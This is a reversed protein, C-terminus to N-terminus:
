SRSRFAEVAPTSNGKADFLATAGGHWVNLGPVPVAEPYWYLVGLGRGDPVAHVTRILEALFARQGEPSVPWDMHPEKAWREADRHPYATEVVLIEKGFARATERLNARVAEIFGHWWPYYSQGIIDFPVSWQHLNTFFWHTTPWDGGRDIHLMIRVPENKGLPQKVGRIGAQLLRTFQEWQRAADGNGGVRGDPWLMGPTVENGIQVIDPLTGRSKLETIVGVTYQTVTAELSAFDMHSWAAPKTQHAPDAWTDSYHFDLLFQMGAAKIRRALAVTYPLDNVVGGHHDPNVFLRLRLCNGGHSKLIRLLDKPKGAEQFVGGLEEIAGLM